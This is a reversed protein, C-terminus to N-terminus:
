TADAGDGRGLVVLGEKEEYPSSAVCYVNRQWDPSRPHRLRAGPAALLGVAPCPRALSPGSVPIELLPLARHASCRFASPMSRSAKGTRTRRERWSATRTR